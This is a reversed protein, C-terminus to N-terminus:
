LLEAFAEEAEKKTRPRKLGPPPEVRGLRWDRAAVMSRRVEPPPDNQKLYRSVDFVDILV